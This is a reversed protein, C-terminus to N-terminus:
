ELTAGLLTGGLRKQRPQRLLAEAFEDVGAREGAKGLDRQSGSAPAEARPAGDEGLPVGGTLRQHRVWERLQGNGEPRVHLDDCIETQRLSSGRRVHFRPRAAPLKREAEVLGAEM